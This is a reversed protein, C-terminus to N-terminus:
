NLSSALELIDVSERCLLEVESSLDYSNEGIKVFAGWNLNGMYVMSLYQEGWRASFSNAGDGFGFFSTDKSNIPYFSAGFARSFDLKVETGEVSIDMYLEEGQQFSPDFVNFPQHCKFIVEASVSAMVTSFLVATIFKQM